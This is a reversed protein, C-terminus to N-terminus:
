DQLDNLRGFEKLMYEDLPQFKLGKEFYERAKASQHHIV